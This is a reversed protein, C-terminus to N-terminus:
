RIEVVKVHSGAARAESATVISVGGRAAAVQAIAARGSTVSRPATGRGSLQLGQWHHRFRAPTMRLVQRHLLRGADSSEPRVYPQVPTNDQWFKERGLFM